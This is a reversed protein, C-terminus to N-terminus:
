CVKEFPSVKKEQSKLVFIHKFSLRTLDGSIFGIKRHGVNILHQVAIFAGHENDIFVQNCDEIAYKSDVLVVPVKAAIIKNVFDEKLIGVLILGEV